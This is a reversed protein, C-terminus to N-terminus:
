LKGQLESRKATGESLIATIRMDWKLKQSAGKEEEKFLFTSYKSLELISKFCEAHIVEHLKEWHSRSSKSNQSVINRLASYRWKIPYSPIQSGINHGINLPWDIVNM